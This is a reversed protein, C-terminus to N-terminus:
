ARAWESIDRGPIIITPNSNDVTAGRRLTATIRWGDAALQGKVDLADVESVILAVASGAGDDGSSVVVHPTGDHGDPVVLTVQVADALAPDLTLPDISAM